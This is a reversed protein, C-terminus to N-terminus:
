IGASITTYAYISIEQATNETESIEFRKSKNNKKKKAEIRIEIHFVVNM